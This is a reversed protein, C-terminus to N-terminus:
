SIEITKSVYKPKRRSSSGEACEHCPLFQLKEIASTKLEPDQDIIKLITRKQEFCDKCLSADEYQELKLM